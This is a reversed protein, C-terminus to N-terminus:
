PEQLNQTIFSSHNILPDTDHSKHDWNKRELFDLAGRQQILGTPLLWLIICSLYICM